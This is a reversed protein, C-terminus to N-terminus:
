PHLPMRLGMEIMSLLAEANGMADDVPNHTHSTRRLHKFNSKTNKVFGKYLSGLNMSSHGFPNRGVFCWFYYNVFAFDFGNNDSVFRPPWASEVHNMPDRKSLTKRLWDDFRHMESAPPPYLLTTEHDTKFVKLADAQWAAGELPRMRAHFRETLGPEVLVAGIEIMSYLGPAPGDAEIDVMIWSMNEGLNVITM